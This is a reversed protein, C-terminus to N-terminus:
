HWTRIMGNATIGFSRKPVAIALVDKSIMIKCKAVKIEVGGGKWAGVGSKNAFGDDDM